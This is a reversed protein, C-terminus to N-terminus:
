MSTMITLLLTQFNLTNTWTWSFYYFAEETLQTTGQNESREYTKRSINKVFQNGADIGFSTRATLTKTFPVEAFVNGFIRTFKNTNDKARTSTQSRIAVTEQNVLVMEVLDVKSIMFLYM